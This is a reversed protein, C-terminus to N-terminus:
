IDLSLGKRQWECNFNMTMMKQGKIMAEQKGSQQKHQALKWHSWKKENDFYLWSFTSSHFLGWSIKM